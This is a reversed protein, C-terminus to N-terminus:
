NKYAGCCVIYDGTKVYYTTKLAVKNTEPNTWKYDVWGSGKTKAGEIIEKVFEKGDPDKRDMLVTGIMQPRAGNVLINGELNLVFIYLEKKRFPGQSRQFQESAKDLGKAQLYSAAKEAMAQAEVAKATHAACAAGCSIFFFLTLSLFLVTKRM